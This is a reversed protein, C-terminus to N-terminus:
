LCERTSINILNYPPAAPYLDQCIYSDRSEPTESIEFYIKDGIQWDDIGPLELTMIVNSYTKSTITVSGTEIEKGQPDTVKILYGEATGGNGIITGTLCNTGAPKISETCSFGSILLSLLLILTKRM